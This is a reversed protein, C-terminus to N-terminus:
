SPSNVSRTNSLGEELETESRTLEDIDVNLNRRTSLAKTVLPAVRRWAQRAHDVEASHQETAGAPDLQSFEEEIQRVLLPQATAPSGNRLLELEGRAQEIHLELRALPILHSTLKAHRAALAKDSENLVVMLALSTTLAPILLIVLTLAMRHSVNLRRMM